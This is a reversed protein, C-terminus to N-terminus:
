FFTKIKEGEMGEVRRKLEASKKLAQELGSIVGLYYYYKECACQTGALFDESRRHKDLNNYAISLLQELHKKM